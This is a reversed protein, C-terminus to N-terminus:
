TSSAHLRPICQVTSESHIELEQLTKQLQEEPQTYIPRGGKTLFFYKSPWGTKDTIKELFDGLTTTNALTFVLTKGAHPERVFFQIESTASM